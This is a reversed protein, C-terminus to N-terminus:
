VIDIDIFLSMRVRVVRQRTMNRQLAFRLGVEKSVESINCIFGFSAM